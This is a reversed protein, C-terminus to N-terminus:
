ERSHAPARNLRTWPRLIRGKALFARANALREDFPKHPQTPKGSVVVKARRATAGTPLAKRKTRAM